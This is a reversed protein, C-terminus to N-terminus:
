GRLTAFVETFELTLADKVATMDVLRGLEREMSTVSGDTIGCPVIWSFPTLDPSVNLAFGHYAVWRKVAVGIAAIKRSELWIGTKGDRRGGSLGFRRLARIIVDELDRLYRHLDQRERLSIIPYIVLQGPGHYTIDGGRNTKCVEVGQAELFPRSALLHKDAGPRVGLTFVPHHETIILTDPIDGAIRQAVLARQLELCEAYRTTAMDRITISESVLDM